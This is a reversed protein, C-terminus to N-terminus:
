KRCSLGTAEFIKDWGMLAMEKNRSTAAFIGEPYGSFADQISAIGDTGSAGSLILSGLHKWTVRNFFEFSNKNGSDQNAVVIFGEGTDKNGIRCEYLLIGEEDDSFFGGTGFVNTKNRMHPTGDPNYALVAGRPYLNSDVGEEEPVYIVNHYSDALVEEIGDVAPIITSVLEGTDLNFGKVAHSESVYAIKEGNNKTLVDMNIEGSKLIGQGISKLLKYGPLSYIDVRNKGLNGVLLWNKEHDIGLGNIKEPVKLPSLENDTFPFKWIEILENKKASVFLYLTKTQPDTWFEPSDINEGSGRLFIEPTITVTGFLPFLFVPEDLDETTVEEQTADEEQPQTLEPQNKQEEKNIEVTKQDPNKKSTKTSVGFFWVAFIALIVTIISVPIAIKYIKRM